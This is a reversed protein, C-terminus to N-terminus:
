LSIRRRYKKLLKREENNYEIWYATVLRRSGDAYKKMIAVYNHDRLWVYTKTTGDGEIYDWHLVETKGANLLMPRLWPLRRCRQPDPIREKTVNDRRSTLHWFLKERGDEQEPFYWVKQSGYQLPKALIEDQFWAYLRDYTQASWSQLNLLEPLWDPKNTM